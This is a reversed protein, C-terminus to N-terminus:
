KSFSLGIKGGWYECIYKVAAPQKPEWEKRFDSLKQQAANRTEEITAKAPLYMLGEVVKEIAAYDTAKDKGKLKQQLTKQIATRVHYACLAQKADSFV